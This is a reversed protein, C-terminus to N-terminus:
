QNILNYSYSCIPNWKSDFVSSIRSSSDYVYQTSAGSQSTISTPGILDRWIYSTTACEGSGIDTLSSAEINNGNWSYRRCKDGPQTLLETLRFRSDYTCITTLSDTGGGAPFSIIQVPKPNGDTGYAYHEEALKMVAGDKMRKRAASAKAGRLVPTSAFWASDRSEHLYTFDTRLTDASVGAGRIVDERVIQGRDNYTYESRSTVGHLTETRSSVRLSVITFDYSHYYYKGNRYEGPISFFIPAYTWESRAIEKGSTDTTVKSKIKGRKTRRDTIVFPNDLALSDCAEIWDCISIVRKTLSYGLAREDQMSNDAATTFRSLTVSGDPHTEKVDSYAVAGEGFSALFGTGCFTRVSIVADCHMNGGSNLALHHYSAEEIYKPMQMLIGSCNGLSDSYDFSRRFTNGACDCDSLARVRLGGVSYTSSHDLPNVWELVLNDSPVKQYSPTYANMRQSVRNGEYEIDTYGGTPYTIRTLAGCSAYYPSAEKSNDNMQDYLHSVTIEGYVPPIDIQVSDPTMISYGEQIICTGPHKIHDMLSTISAGNWYGWHDTGQTDNEPLSYGALHYDFSWTGGRLTSVGSLFVKPTGYSACFQSLSVKEAIHGDQGYVMITKLISPAGLSGVLSIDQNLFCESSFENAPAPAYNFVITRPEYDDGATKFSIRNIQYNYDKIFTYSDQAAHSIQGSTEQGGSDISNNNFVGSVQSGYQLISSLRQHMAHGFEAKRGNPAYIISLSWATIAEPPEYAFAPSETYTQSRNSKNFVYRYGDGTGITISYPICDQFDFAIDLQGEPLDSNFVRVSGDDLMLFDGSHGLFSFHWLDPQMDYSTMLSNPITYVPVDSFIGYGDFGSVYDSSNVSDYRLRHASWINAVNYPASIGNERSEVWGRVPVHYSADLPSVGEDPVGRVERTIVGGCNLYWGYGVTGSHQGPRYGDFSYELSIPITFDPDEYTYLPLSFTMAGTYLSPTLNGYRTMQWAEVSPSFIGYPNFPELSQAWLLPAGALLAGALSLLRTVAFFKKKLM